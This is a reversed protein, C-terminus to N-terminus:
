GSVAPVSVTETSSTGDVYTVTVTLPYSQGPVAAGPGAGSDYGSFTANAPFSGGAAPSSVYSKGPGPLCNGFGLGTSTGGSCMAAQVTTTKGTTTNLVAVNLVAVVGTIQKGENDQFALQFLGGQYGVVLSVYTIKLFSATSSSQSAGSSSTTSSHKPTNLLVGAAAAGIIVIVVVIL